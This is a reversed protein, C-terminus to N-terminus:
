LEEERALGECLSAIEDLSLRRLVGYPGLVPPFFRYGEFVAAANHGIVRADEASLGHRLLRLALKQGTRATRIERIAVARKRVRSM